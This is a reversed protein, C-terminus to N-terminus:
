RAKALEATLYNVAAQLQRDEFAKKQNDKADKEDKAAVPKTSEGGHESPPLIDRDRRNRILAAMERDSLKIEFGKDPMVGWEDTPKADPFRHINKGSPRRYGATTLKLASRGDEMEIVNQVSGKGWTREGVIVARHHDQLCASVIESASASFHNVLVVIPFGEFTDEKHANWVREPSNRGKTSVIRGESVFLDSVAVASNLLGGPNFRLDLILGRLKEAKLRTLVKELESATDRSFITLRVYAIRQKPDLMYSWTGDANHHDGLVTDIHIRERRIKLTHKEDQGAHTVTLSVSTGEDGKLKEVAQDLALGDANKGDIEWIRDGAQLGARYAPTGYLPSLIRLQGDESTIQIGIGGFENEMGSRFRGFDEPGIYNSYPDLKNLVGRIASDVLDRRDVKKVYNREVQDITDVLTKYLEYDDDPKKKASDSTAGLLPLTAFLIALGMWGRLARLM